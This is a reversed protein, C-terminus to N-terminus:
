HELQATKIAAGGEVEVVPLYDESKPPLASKYGIATPYRPVIVGRHFVINKKHPDENCQLVKFTMPDGINWAFGVFRRPQM